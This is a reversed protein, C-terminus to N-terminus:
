DAIGAGYILGEEEEYAENQAQLLAKRAKRGEKSELSNRRNQRSVRQSDMQEAYHLSQTGVVIGAEKMVMLLSTNGENFLGTALYSAVEIVKLGSHLHKPALRWVTSNFSENANQTHGGLCRELLEDRSLDEYIPLIEKQVDPHLPTPHPELEMGLATRKQWECWSDEGEPCYEHRPNEDTSIMHYYTAMIAKKMDQVSDIHRRIALGYYTSLKKVLSETLKGKGGLKKTKRINRLRTGMRKQVHGICESKLVQHDDGYPNLKLIAAFTKSDGDGIYNGYKVGHVEESRLFMKKVSEVEMSGASGEHNKTCDEDDHDEKWELYERSNKSKNQWKACAHCYSSRVDLDIVKGCYYGILTTVGFLSKFGRKKWTGDGSVKFNLIPREIKENEKKEEEVAKKCCYDFVTKAAVHIHSFIRNYTEEAIGSGIDMYNCFLNLGQRGVGLLRMVFVIRRNIEFGTNILPSSNIHRSGCNCKVVLKFGLGRIGTEEFKYNQQCNRCICIDSLATFFTFFEIIRYLHLPNVTVNDSTSSELKKASASQDENNDSQKNDHQNGYFKRRRPKSRRKYTKHDGKPYSSM